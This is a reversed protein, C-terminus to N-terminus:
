RYFSDGNGTGPYGSTTPYTGSAATSGPAYSGSTDSNAAPAKRPTLAASATSFSPSSAGTSATNAPTSRSGPLAFGTTTSPSDGTPPALEATATTAPKPTFPKAASPASGDAAVSSPLTFGDNPATGSATTGVNPGSPLVYGSPPPPANAPEPMAYSSPVPYKSTGTSATANAPTMATPADKRTGYQYGAPLAPVASTGPSGSTASGPAYGPLQAAAASNAAKGSALAFGNAAAASLNTKPAAAPNRNAATDFGTIPQNGGATAVRSEVSPAATGGAVSAIAMPSASESPPTPFTTTPGQGALTEASPTHRSGFLNWKPMASRCGAAAGVTAACTVVLLHQQLKTRKQM